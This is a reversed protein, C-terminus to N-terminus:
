TATGAAVAVLEAHRWPQRPETVRRREAKLDLEREAEVRAEKALAHTAQSQRRPAGKESSKAIECLSIRAIVLSDRLLRGAGEPADPPGGPITAAKAAWAEAVM